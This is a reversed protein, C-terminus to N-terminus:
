SLGPPRVGGRVGEPMAIDLTTANQAPCAPPYIDCPPSVEVHLPINRGARGPDGARRRGRRRCGSRRAARHRLTMTVIFNVEGVKGRGTALATTFGAAVAEIKYAVARGRTGRVRRGQRRGAQRERAGQDARPTVSVYLRFVTAGAIAM